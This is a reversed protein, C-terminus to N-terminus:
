KHIINLLLSFKACLTLKTLEECRSMIFLTVSFPTTANFNTNGFSTFTVRCDIIERGKVATVEFDKGM